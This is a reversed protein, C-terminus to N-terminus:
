PLTGKRVNDMMPMYGERRRGRSIAVGIFSGRVEGLGGAIGEGAGV